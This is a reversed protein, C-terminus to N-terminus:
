RTKRSDKPPEPLNNLAKVTADGIKKLFAKGEASLDNKPDKKPKKAVEAQAEQMKRKFKQVAEWVQEKLQEDTKGETSILAVLKKM